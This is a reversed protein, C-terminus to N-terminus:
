RGSRGLWQDLCGAEAPRNRAGAVVVRDAFRVLAGFGAAVRIRVAGYGGALDRLRRALGAVIGAEFSGVAGAVLRTGADGSGARVLDRDCWGLAFRARRVAVCRERRAAVGAVARARFALGGASAWIALDAVARWGVARGGAAVRGVAAGAEIQNCGGGSAHDAAFCAGAAIRSSAQVCPRCDGGAAARCRGGGVVGIGGDARVLVTWVGALRSAGADVGAGRVAVPVATGGSRVRALGALPGADRWAAAVAPGAAVAPKALGARRRM